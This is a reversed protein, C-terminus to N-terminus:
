EKVVHTIFEHDQSLKHFLFNFLPQLEIAEYYTKRPFPSPFLSIPAHMVFSNNSFAHDTPPRIVLGHSLSWDIALNKLLKLNESSLNPPYEPFFTESM